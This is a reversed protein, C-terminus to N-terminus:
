ARRDVYNPGAVMLNNPMVSQITEMKSGFLLDRILGHGYAGLVLLSDHPVEYLNEEFRGGFFLLWDDVYASMDDGLGSEVIVREYDDRTKGGEVQTFLRLKMGTKRAIRAGLRLANVANESGGFFVTISNWQRFSPSTILVPFFASRIIRRVRSGIYGLGIKSTLDSISRPCCMFDFDVPIDPLTSATFNKAKFVGPDLGEQEALERAHKEATESATLYSSDLDVQVVDREFYMLFKTHKPVYVVPSAGMLRCFYLSQLFTERGTPTNRFIHFLQTDM